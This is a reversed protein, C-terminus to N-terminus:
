SPGDEENGDEYALRLPEKSRSAQGSPAGTTCAVGAAGTRSDHWEHLDVACQHM